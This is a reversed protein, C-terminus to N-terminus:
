LEYLSFKPRDSYILGRKDLLDLATQYSDLIIMSRGLVQLHMVPGYTKAWQHFVLASDTSPMHLLHGIFPDGPPGPPLM